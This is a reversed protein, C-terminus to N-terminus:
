KRRFYTSVTSTLFAALIVAGATAIALAYVPFGFVATLLLFTALQGSTMRGDEWEESTVIYRVGLALGTLVWVTLFLSILATM